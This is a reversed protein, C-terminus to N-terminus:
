ACGCLPGVAVALPAGRPALRPLPSLLRLSLLSLPLPLSRRIRPLLLLGPFPPPLLRLLSLPWARLLLSLLLLLLAPLASL